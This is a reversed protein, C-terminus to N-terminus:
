LNQDGIKKWDLPCGDNQVYKLYALLFFISISNLVLELITHVNETLIKNNWRGNLNMDITLQLALFEFFIFIYFKGLLDLLSYNRLLKQM